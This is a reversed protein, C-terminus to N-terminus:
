EQNQETESEILSEMSVGLAKAIRYLTMASCKAISTKGNCIDNITMYPLGSLKSLRYKTVGAERMLKNIAM